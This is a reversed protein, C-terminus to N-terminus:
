NELRVKYEIKRGPPANIWESWSAGDLTVKLLYRGEYIEKPEMPARGLSRSNLYISAGSPAKVVLTSKGFTLRDRHEAGSRIRYIRYKNIGTKKDTFRLKHRGTELKITLPTRGLYKRQDYVDVKPTSKLSLMGSTPKAPETKETGEAGQTGETKPPEPTGGKVEMGETEQVPETKKTLAQKVMEPSLKTRESPADLGKPPEKSFFVALILLLGAAGLVLFLTSKSSDGARRNFQTISSEERLATRPKTSVKLPGMGAVPQNSLLPDQAPVQSPQVPMGMGGNTGNPAYGQQMQQPAGPQPAGPQPAGPQPMMPAQPMNPRPAGMPPASQQVFSREMRQPRPDPLRPQPLKPAGPQANAIAQPLANYVTPQQPLVMMQGAQVAPGAQQPATQQPPGWSGQPQPVQQPVQAMQQHPVQQPAVQQPVAMQQAPQPVPQPQVPQQPIPQQQIPQQPQVPAPQPAPQQAVVPASQPVPQVPQPVTPQPTPAASPVTFSPLEPQVKGNPQPLAASRDSVPRVLPSEEDPDNDPITTEGSVVNGSPAAPSSKPGKGTVQTVEERPKPERLAEKGDSVTSARDPAQANVVTVEERPKPTRIEPEPLDHTHEQRSTSIPGPRSAEFLAADVGDPAELPRSLMTILDPDAASQLLEARGKREPSDEPILGSVFAEMAEYGPLEQGEEELAKVVAQKMLLVSEFRDVGRKALATTAVNGLRGALGQAEIIPPEGTLVAREPDEVDSYLPHGAILEYLIAGIAYVDTAPSATAKGGIIQEPAFYVFKSRVPTGHQTPALVSAGYGTVMTVGKFNVLITDPRIGGHVIPRGAYRSQGEEHAYHVGDCIDIIIRAAMEPTLTRGTENGKKLITVLPEGDVFSVVRAWGEEFCELGFVRIINKHKLQTIFATERQLRAVRQPESTVDEPLWVVVVPRQPKPIGEIVECGLFARTEAGSLLPGLVAYQRTTPM